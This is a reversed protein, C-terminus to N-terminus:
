WLCSVLWHDPSWSFALQGVLPWTVLWLDASWGIAFPGITVQGAILLLDLDVLTVFPDCSDVSWCWTMMSPQVAISLWSVVMSVDGVSCMEGVHRLAIRGWLTTWKWVRIAGSKEDGQRRHIWAPVLRKMSDSRFGIVNTVNILDRQVCVDYKKYMRYTYVDTSPDIVIFGKALWLHHSLAITGVGDWKIFIIILSM